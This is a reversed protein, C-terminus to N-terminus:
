KLCKIYVKEVWSLFEERSLTKKSTNCQSCCPVVNEPEYGLCNDVRDIGTYILTGGNKSSSKRVNSPGAGCYNCNETILQLFLNYSLNFDYGRTKANRKYVGYLLKQDADRAAPASKLYNKNSCSKCMTTKGKVLCSAQQNTVWGCECQCVYVRRDGVRVIDIVTWKVFKQGLVIKHRRLCGCSKASGTVLSQGSAQKEEGCECLVKWYVIGNKREPMKSVVLYLGFRQGVLERKPM